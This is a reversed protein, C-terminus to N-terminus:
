VALEDANRLVESNRGISAMIVVVFDPLKRTKQFDESGKRFRSM